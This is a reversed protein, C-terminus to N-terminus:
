PTAPKGHAINKSANAGYTFIELMNSLGTSMTLEDGNVICRGMLAMDPNFNPTYDKKMFLIKIETTKNSFSDKVIVTLIYQNSDIEQWDIQAGDKFAYKIFDSVNIHLDEKNAVMGAGNPYLYTVPLNMFTSTPDSASAISPFGMFVSIALIFLKVIKNVQISM